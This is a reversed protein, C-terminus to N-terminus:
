AVKEGQFIKTGIRVMTAGEEVAIQYDQSMGMSVEPLNFQDAIQRCTKFAKRTVEEDDRKGMCMFGRLTINPLASIQSVLQSLLNDSSIQFGSKQEEGTLNLQFFIEIQKKKKIAEVSVKKAYRLSTVSQIVQCYKVLKPIKNTQLQGIYHLAVQHNKLFTFLQNDYKKEIEQLRNEAVMSAGASVVEMIDNKSRKKTVILLEAPLIDKKLQSLNKKM